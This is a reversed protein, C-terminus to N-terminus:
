RPEILAIDPPQDVREDVAAWVVLAHPDIRFGADPEAVAPQRDDVQRGGPVLRHLGRVAAVHDRVVGFDVIVGLKALLELRRAMSRGAAPAAM